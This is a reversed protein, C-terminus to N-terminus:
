KMGQGNNYKGIKAAKKNKFTGKAAEAEKNKLENYADLGIEDIKNRAESNLKKNSVYHGFVDKKTPDVGGDVHIPPQWVGTEERDKVAKANAGAQSNLGYKEAIAKNKAKIEPKFVKRRVADIKKWQATLEKDPAGQRQSGDPNTKAQKQLAKISALMSANTKTTEPKRTTTKLVKRTAM